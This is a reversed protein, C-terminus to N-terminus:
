LGEEIEVQSTGMRILERDAIGQLSSEGKTVRV